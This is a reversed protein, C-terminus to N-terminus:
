TVSSGLDLEGTQNENVLMRVIQAEVTWLFRKCVQLLSSVLKFIDSGAGCSELYRHSM